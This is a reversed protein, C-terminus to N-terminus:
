VHELYIEVRREDVLLVKDKQIVKLITAVTQLYADVGYSKMDSAGTAGGRVYACVKKIGWTNFGKELLQVAEALNNPDNLSVPNKSYGLRQVLDHSLNFISVNASGDKNDDKGKDRSNVDVANTEIMGMALLLARHSPPVKCKQFAINLAAKNKRM